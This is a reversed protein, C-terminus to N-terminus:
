RSDGSVSEAHANRSWESGPLQVGRSARWQSKGGPPNTWSGLYPPDAGPCHCNAPWKPVLHHQPHPSRQHPLRSSSLLCGHYLWVGCEQHAWSPKWPELFQVCTVTKSITNKNHKNKGLFPTNESEPSRPPCSNKMWNLLISSSCLTVIIGVEVSVESVIACNGYNTSLKKKKGPLEEM